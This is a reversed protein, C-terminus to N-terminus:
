HNSSVLATNSLQLAFGHMGCDVFALHRIGSKQACIPPPCFAEGNAQACYNTNKLFFITTLIIVTIVRIM